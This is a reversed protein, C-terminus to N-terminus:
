GLTKEAEFHKIYLAMTGKGEGISPDGFHLRALAFREAGNWCYDPQRTRAVTNVNHCHVVVERTPVGTPHLGNVRKKTKGYTAYLLVHITELSLFSIGAIDGIGSGILDAEIKKTVLNSEMGIVLHM